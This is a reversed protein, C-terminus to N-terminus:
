SGDRRDNLFATLDDVAGALHPMAPMTQTPRKPQYGEPYTAHVVRAEVLERWSGAIAPGLAGPLAPDPNHCAVCVNKYVRQGRTWADEDAPDSGGESCATWTMLSAACVLARTERRM